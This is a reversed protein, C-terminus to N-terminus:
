VVSKRDAPLVFGYGNPFMGEDDGVRFFDRIESRWGDARTLHLGVVPERPFWLAWRGQSRETPPLDFRLEVRRVAEGFRADPSLDVVTVPRQEHPRLQTSAALMAFLGLLLLLCGALVWRHGPMADATDLAM